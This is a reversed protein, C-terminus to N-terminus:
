LSLVQPVDIATRIFKELHNGPSRVTNVLLFSPLKMVFSCNLIQENTNCKSCKKDSKMELSCFFSGYILSQLRIADSRDTDWIKAEIYNIKDIIGKTYGCAACQNLDALM